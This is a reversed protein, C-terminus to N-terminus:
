NLQWAEPPQSDLYDRLESVVDALQEQVTREFQDIRQVNMEAQHDKQWLMEEWMAVLTLKVKGANDM